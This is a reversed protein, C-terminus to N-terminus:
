SAACISVAFRNKPFRYLFLLALATFILGITILISSLRTDGYELVSMKPNKPNVRVKVSSSLPYRSLISEAEMQQGVAFNAASRRSSKFSQANYCYEYEIVAVFEYGGHGAYSKDIRSTVITGSVEEWRRPSLEQVRQRLGFALPVLGLPLFLPWHQMTKFPFRAQM